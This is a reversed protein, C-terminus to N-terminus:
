GEGPSGTIKSWNERLSKEAQENMEKRAHHSLSWGLPLTVKGRRPVLLIYIGGTNEVLRHLQAQAAATHATRVQLLTWIPALFGSSFRLPKIEQKVRTKQDGNTTTVPNNNIMIVKLLATKNMERLKRRVAYILEMTTTAGSNDFYGGDVVHIGGELTGAPSVYTFRASNHIATSLRMDKGAEIYRYIDLTDAFNPTTKPNPSTKPNPNIKIPSGIIRQGTEVLTGNLFLVPVRCTTDGNWLNSLSEDFRNSKGKFTKEWAIEWSRELALARSFYKVSFPFLDQLLDGTLMSAVTPSLFDGSLMESSRIFFFDKEKKYSDDQQREKILAAYVGGGLSGGSVSSIAFLHESFQLYRDQIKGLVIATWYAARIGGGETSVIYLPAKKGSAEGTYPYKNLFSELRSALNVRDPQGDRVRVQHIDNWLSFIMALILLMMFIPLKFRFSM